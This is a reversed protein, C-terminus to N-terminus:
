DNGENEDKYPSLSSLEYYINWNNKKKWEPNLKIFNEEANIKLERAKDFDNVTLKSTKVEFVNVLNNELYKTQKNFEWKITEGNSGKGKIIRYIRERTIDEGINNQNNTVLIFKRNGDDEQNLEMVAQATTGSGAFFDLITIDKRSILKILNKILSVPKPYPFLNESKSNKPTLIKKLTDSGTSKFKLVSDQTVNKFENLYRKFNPTTTEDVGFILNGKKIHEQMTEENYRWGNEPVRVPKKTVPHLVDYNKILNSNESKLGGVDGRSYVVFKNTESDIEFNNFNLVGSLLNKNSRLYEKFEKTANKLSSQHDSDDKLYKHNLKELFDNIEQYGNKSIRFYNLQQIVYKNKAYCLIYEHINSTTKSLGKHESKYWIFNEVFNDEGFIEDMLVKLYAQENDDISIFILGEQSLLQKALKLRENMM